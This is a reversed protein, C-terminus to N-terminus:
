ERTSEQERMVSLPDQYYWGYEYRDAVASGTVVFGLPRAPSSALVRGLERLTSRRVVGQRVVVLVSDVIGAITMADGVALMAPTDVLVIDARDRLTELIEFVGQSGVFEGPDPPTRGLTLVELAGAGHGNQSDSRGWYPKPPIAVAKLSNELAVDSAVVDTFGPQEPLHFLKHIIARRADLDCLVVRQGAQALAVALNAVTTSKGERASASTVMIVRRPGMTALGLRVRLMRISEAYPSGPHTLMAVGSAPLERSPEPIRGLLPLGGLSDEIEDESRVRTDLADALFALAIALVIGLGIGLAAIRTPSRPAIQVASDAPRVVSANSTQLADVEELQDKKARLDRYLSSSESGEARLTALRRDIRQRAKEIRSSDVENRFDVFQEAYATALRRALGPDQDRVAFYLIDADPASTVRSAGLLEYPGSDRIGVAALTRRAVEPFRALREQTKGFREADSASTPGALGGLSAALNERNLFLEATAEYLPAQRLTLAVALLPVLVIAPLMVWKRRSLVGLYTLLNASGGAGEPSGPPIAPGPEPRNV